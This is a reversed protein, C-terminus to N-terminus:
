YGTSDRFKELQKNAEVVHVNATDGVNVSVPRTIAEYGNVTQNENDVRQALRELQDAREQLQQQVEENRTADSAKEIEETARDLYEQPM